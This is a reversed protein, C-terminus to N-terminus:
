HRSPRHEHAVPDELQRRLSLLNQLERGLTRRRWVALVALVATITFVIVIRPSTLYVWVGPRDPLTHYIWTLNFSLMPIYLVSAAAIARCRRRCALISFDLFALSTAALPTSLGRTLSLSVTWCIAIFIWVAATLVAANARHSLIAWGPVALGVIVTVAVEAARGIRNLRLEREVRQRLDQPVTEQAEWQRRWTELETDPQVSDEVVGM